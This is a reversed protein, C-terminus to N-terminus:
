TIVVVVNSMPVIERHLLGSLAFFSGSSGNVPSARSSDGGISATQWIVLSGQFCPQLTLTQIRSPMFDRIANASVFYKAIEKDGEPAHSTFKGSIIGLVGRTEPAPFM